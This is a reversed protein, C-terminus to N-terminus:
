ERILRWQSVSLPSFRVILSVRWDTSSRYTWKRPVEVTIRPFPIKNVVSPEIVNWVQIKSSQLTIREADREKEFERKNVSFRGSDYFLPSEFFRVKRNWLRDTLSDDNMSVTNRPDRCKLEMHSFILELMPFSNLKHSEKEVRPHPVDKHHHSESVTLGRITEFNHFWVSRYKLVDRLHTESNGYRSIERLQTEFNVFIIVM